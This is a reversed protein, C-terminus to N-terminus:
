PAQFITQGNEDLLLLKPGDEHLTLSVRERQQGLFCPRRSLIVKPRRIRVM